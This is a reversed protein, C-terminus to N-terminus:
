EPSAGIRWRGGERLAGGASRSGHQIVEFAAENGSVIVRGIRVGAAASRFRHSQRAVAALAAACTTARLRRRHAGELFAAKMGSTLSECATVYDGHVLAGVYREAVNRVTADERESKSPGGCGVFALTVAVCPALRGVGIAASAGSRRM